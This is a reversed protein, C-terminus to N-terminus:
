KNIVYVRCPCRGKIGTTDFVEILKLNLQQLIERIEGDYIELPDSARSYNDQPSYAHELYLSGPDNVQESWVKIAKVPDYSHDIANSYVIDFKAVWDPNIEHFDWQVTMPFQDATHSIETGIIDASPFFESFYKQEAANRTGHCLVGNVVTHKKAITEVTHRDVWINKLKRVNAEVQAAV